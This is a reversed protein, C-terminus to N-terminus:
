TMNKRQVIIFLTLRITILSSMMGDLNPFYGLLIGPYNREDYFPKIWHAGLSQFFDNGGIGEVLRYIFDIDKM